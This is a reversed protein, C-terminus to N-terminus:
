SILCPIYHKVVSKSCKSKRILMATVEKKSNCTIGVTVEEGDGLPLISNWDCVDTGSLFSLQDAWGPGNFAYYFVAMAYRQLFSMYYADEPSTPITFALTDVTAIWTAALNEPKTVDDLNELNSGSFRTLFAMTAGLRALLPQSTEPDIPLTTPTTIPSTTKPEIPPSTETTIPPSTEMTVPPTTTSEESRTAVDVVALVYTIVAIALLALVAAIWAWRCKNSLSEPAIKLQRPSRKKETQARQEASEPSLDRTSVNSDLLRKAYLRASRPSLDGTSGGGVSDRVRNGNTSKSNYDNNEEDTRDEANWLEISKFRMLSSPAIELDLSYDSHDSAAMLRSARSRANFNVSPRSTPRAPPEDGADIANSSESITSKLM